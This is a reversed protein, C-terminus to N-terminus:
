RLGARIAPKDPAPQKEPAAPSPLAAVAYDAGGQNVCPPLLKYGLRAAEDVYTQTGYFGGGNNIVSCIFYGPYWAKMWALRYSVLAYSASHAKCFSYGAFSEMMDWLAAVAESGM